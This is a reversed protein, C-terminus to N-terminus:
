WKRGSADMFWRSFRPNQHFVTTFGTAFLSVAEEEKLEAKQPALDSWLFHGIEHLITDAANERPIVPHVTLLNDMRHASGIAKSESAEMPTMARIEVRRHLIRIANPPPDYTWPYPFRRKETKTVM